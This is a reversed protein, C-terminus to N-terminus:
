PTVKALQQGTFGGAERWASVNAPSGWSKSPAAAYLWAVYYALLPANTEDARGVAGVLDNILIAGLFHGPRVGLEIYLVLSEHADEPLTVFGGFADVRPDHWRQRTATATTV